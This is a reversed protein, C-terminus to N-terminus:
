EIISRSMSFIGNANTSGIYRWHWPEFSVRQLNNRPFSLEFGYKDAHQNLWNYAPTLEFEFKLDAEPQKGDGIDVAYGTHHESYGPPASLRAAAEKSGRKEVQKAFLQQQTAIPRFGSILILDIGELKADAKMLKFAAATEQHLYETRHYYKGMNVLRNRPAEEYPFHGLYTKSQFALIPQSSSNIIPQQTRDQNVIPPNPLNVMSNNEEKPTNTSSRTPPESAISQPTKQLEPQEQQSSLSSNEELDRAVVSSQTSEVPSSLQSSQHNSWLGFLIGVMLAALFVNIFFFYKQLFQIIKM